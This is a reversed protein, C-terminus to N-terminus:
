WLKKWPKQAQADKQRAEKQQQLKKQLQPFKTAPQRATTQTNKTMDPQDDKAFVNIRGFKTRDRYFPWAILRRHLPVLRSWTGVGVLPPPQFFSLEAPILHLVPLARPDTATRISFGQSM